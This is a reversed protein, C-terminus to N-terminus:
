WGEPSEQRAYASCFVRPRGLDVVGERLTQLNLASLEEVYVHEQKTNLKFLHPKYFGHLM